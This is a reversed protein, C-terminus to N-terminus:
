VGASEVRIIPIGKRFKIRDEDQMILRVAGNLLIRIRDRSTIKGSRLGLKKIDSLGIMGGKECYYKLMLLLASIMFELRGEGGNIINSIGRENLPQYLMEIGAGTKAPAQAEFSIKYLSSSDRNDLRYHVRFREPEYLVATWRTKETISGTLFPASFIEDFTCGTETHGNPCHILDCKWGPIWKYEMVPCALPFVEEVPADITQKVEVRAAYDSQEFQNM